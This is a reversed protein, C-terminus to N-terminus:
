IIFHFTYIYTYIYVTNYNRDLENQHHAINIQVLGAVWCKLTIM